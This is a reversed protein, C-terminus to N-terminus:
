VMGIDVETNYIQGMVSVYSILHKNWKCSSATFISTWLHAVLYSTTDIWCHGRYWENHLSIIVIGALHSQLSYFLKIVWINWIGLWHFTYNKRGQKPGLLVMHCQQVIRLKHKSWYSKERCTNRGYWHLISGWTHQPAPLSWRVPLYPWHLYSTLNKERSQPLRGATPAVVRRSGDMREDAPVCAQREGACERRRANSMVRGDITSTFITVSSPCSWEQALFWRRWWPCPDRTLPFSPFARHTNSRCRALVYPHKCNTINFNPVRKFQTSTCEKKTTEHPCATCTVSM